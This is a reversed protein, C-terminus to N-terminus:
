LRRGLPNIIDSTCYINMTWIYFLVINKEVKYLRVKYEFCWYSNQYSYNPFENIARKIEDEDYDPNKVM